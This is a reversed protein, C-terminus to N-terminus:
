LQLNRGNLGTDNPIFGTQGGLLCTWFTNLQEYSYAIQVYGHLGLFLLPSGFEPTMFADQTVTGYFQILRSFAQPTFM